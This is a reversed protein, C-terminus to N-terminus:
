QQPLLDIVNNLSIFYDQIVQAEKGTFDLWEYHYPTPFATALQLLPFKPTALLVSIGKEGSLTQSELQVVAIYNTNIVINGVKIFTM